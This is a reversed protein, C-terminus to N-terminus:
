YAISIVLAGSYDGHLNSQNVILSGGVWVNLIGEGNQNQPQYYVGSQIEIPNVFDTNLGTHVIKPIFVPGSQNQNNILNITNFDILVPKEPHSIIKFKVGEEPSKTFFQQSNSLVIEGFDLVNNESSVSIGRKLSAQVPINIQENNQSYLNSTSFIFVLLSFFIKKNM